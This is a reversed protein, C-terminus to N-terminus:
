YDTYEAAFVIGGALSIAISVYLKDGAALRIPVTETISTFVTIPTATSTAVTYALMKVSNILRKTTGGDSSQFLLLSTAAVTARPMATLKTAVCGEAGATLLLQTNTPSDDTYTGATTCVATAYKPTQAFPATFTKAM